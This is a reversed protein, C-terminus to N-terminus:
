SARKSEADIREVIWMRMLTQYGIGKAEAIRKVRDLTPRDIRIAIQQKRPKAVEVPEKEEPMEDFYETTDHTDFFEAMERETKFKPLKGM